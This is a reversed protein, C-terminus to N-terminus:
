IGEDLVKVQGDGAGYGFLRLGLFGFPGASRQKSLSHGLSVYEPLDLHSSIQESVRQKGRGRGQLRCLAPIAAVGSRAAETDREKGKEPLEQRM